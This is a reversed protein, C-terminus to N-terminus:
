PCAEQMKKQVCSKLVNRLRFLTIRVAADTIALLKGIMETPHGEEYRLRIIKQNKESLESLCHKLATQSPDAEVETDDEVQSLLEAVANLHRDAQRKESRFHNLCTNKAVGKLWRVPEIGKPMNEHNRYFTLYVKQAIDDVDHLPVGMGAIYARIQAQTQSVIEEFKQDIEM